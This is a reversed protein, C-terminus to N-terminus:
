CRSINYYQWVTACRTALQGNYWGLLPLLDADYQDYEDYQPGCGSTGCDEGDLLGAIGRAAAAEAATSRDPDMDEDDTTGFPFPRGGALPLGDGRGAPGTLCPGLLMALLLTWVVPSASPLAITLSGPTTFPCCPFCSWPHPKLRWPIQRSCPM